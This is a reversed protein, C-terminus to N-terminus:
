QDALIKTIPDVPFCIYKGVSLSQFPRTQREEKEDVCQLADNRPDPVCVEIRERKRERVQTTSCGLPIAVTSVFFLIKILRLQM